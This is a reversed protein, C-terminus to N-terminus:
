QIQFTLEDSFKASPKRVEVTSFQAQVKYQGAPLNGSTKGQLGVIETWSNNSKNWSLWKLSVGPHSISLAQVLSQQNILPGVKVSDLIRIRKFFQLWMNEQDVACFNEFLMDRMLCYQHTPRYTVQQSEDYTKYASIADNFEYDPSYAYLDAFALINNGDPNLERIELTHNGPTLNQVKETTFFSRDSTGIGELLLPKGNLLIEVDSLNEWGVSSIQVEFWFNKGNVPSPFKFNQVVNGDKLNQWVYAGGLFRMDQLAPTTPKMWHSWSTSPTRSSNAGRYVMGGDYEEGVSGFNHGLEHRLVIKGSQRSSTTIAYQGGLGGYYDDNAVVIPFDTKPALQIAQDIASTNGPMIARKSGAPERYLGFVTDKRQLDTIGSDRSATFVAYVNFLSKYSAFTKGNFLDDVLMAVDQFFKEKEANTYGDGLFTLCIRNKAPGQEVITRVEAGPFMGRPTVLFKQFSQPVESQNWLYEEYIENLTSQDEGHFRPFSRLLEPTFAKSEIAPVLGLPQFQGESRVGKLIWQAQASPSIILAGTLFLQLFATFISKQKKQKM